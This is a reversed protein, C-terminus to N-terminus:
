CLQRVLDNRVTCRVPFRGRRPENVHRIGVNRQLTGRLARREDSDFRDHLNRLTQRCFNESLGKFRPQHNVALPVVLYSPRTM